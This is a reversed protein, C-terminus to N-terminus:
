NTDAKVNRKLFSMVRCLRKWAPTGVVIADSSTEESFSNGIHYFDALALSARPDGADKKVEQGMADMGHLIVSRALKQKLLGTRLGASKKTLSVQVGQVAIAPLAKGHNRVMFEYEAQFESQQQPTATATEATETEVEEMIEEEVEQTVEEKSVHEIVEEVILEPEAKPTPAASLSPKEEVSSQMDILWARNLAFLAMAWFLESMTNHTPPIETTTYKTGHQKNSRSELGAPYGKVPLAAKGSVFYATRGRSSKTTKSAVTFVVPQMDVRSELSMVSQLNAVAVFLIPGM